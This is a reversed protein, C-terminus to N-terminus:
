NFKTNKVSHFTSFSFFSFKERQNKKEERRKRKVKQLENQLYDIREAANRADAAKIESDQRLDNLRSEMEALTIKARSM